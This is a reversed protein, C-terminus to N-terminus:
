GLNYKSPQFRAEKCGLISINEKNNEATENKPWKQGVKLLYYRLAAAGRTINKKVSRLQKNLPGFIAFTNRDVPHLKSPKENDKLIRM